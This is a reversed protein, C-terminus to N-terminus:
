RPKELHHYDRIHSFHGGWKWGLSLFDQLVFSETHLTGKAGPIYTAGEPLTRRDEYIVPNQHPNIDIAEGTAHRSLRKTGAVFRYNFCSTNNDTMSAEDSWGYHVLPIIRGIPFRLERIKSFIDAIEKALRRNVVLQGEHLRGDFSFYRVDLLYLQDILEPPAATGSTAEAFSMRSDVIVKDETSIYSAMMM